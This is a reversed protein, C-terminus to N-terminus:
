EGDIQDITATLPEIEKKQVIINTKDDFLSSNNDMFFERLSNESIHSHIHVTITLSNVKSISNEKCVNVIADYLNQNLFTDHM